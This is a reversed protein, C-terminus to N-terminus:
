DENLLFEAIKKDLQYNCPMSTMDYQGVPNVELFVFRGSKTKVIDISGTNLNVAQMLLHIRQELELPLKYPVNRNNTYKRFDTKTQNDLQSFIAMSYCSGDLYFTRIDMAKELKEQFLSYYFIDNLKCLFEEPVVETFNLFSDVTKGNNVSFGISEWIAKTIVVGNKEVFTKLEAKKNTILTAPIDIGHKSAMALMEIKNVSAKGFNGLIKKSLTLCAYLAKKAASYENNLNRLVDNYFAEKSITSLAEVEVNYTSDRRYWVSTVNSFNIKKKHEIEFNFGNNSLTLTVPLKPSVLDAGNIRIFEAKKNYLWDIVKDTSPELSRSIIIVM